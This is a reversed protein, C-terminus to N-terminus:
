DLLSYAITVTEILLKTVQGFNLALSVFFVGFNAQFLNTYSVVGPSKVSSTRKLKVLTKADGTDFYSYFKIQALDRTMSSSDPEPFPLYKVQIQQFKNINAELASTEQMKGLFYLM